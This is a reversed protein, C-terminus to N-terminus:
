RALLLAIIGAVVAAALAVMLGIRVKKERDTLESWPKQPKQKRGIAIGCALGIVFGAGFSGM